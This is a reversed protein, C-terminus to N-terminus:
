IMFLRMKCPISCFMSRLVVDINGTNNFVGAPRIRPDYEGKGLIRDLIKKEEMRFNMMRNKESRRRREIRRIGRMSKTPPITNSKVHSENSESLFIENQTPSPIELTEFSRQFLILIVCTISKLTIEYKSYQSWIENTLIKYRYIM